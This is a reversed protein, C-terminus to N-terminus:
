PHHDWEDAEKRPMIGYPTIVRTDPGPRERHGAVHARVAQHKASASKQGNQQSSVVRHNSQM